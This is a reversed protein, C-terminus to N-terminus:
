NEKNLFFTLPIHVRLRWAKESHEAGVFKRTMWNKNERYGASRMVADIRQQFPEYTADLTETGFDFYLKHNQPKPLHGKLYDIVIGDGAPWHTSVCGAGGFVDPYESMAYASILGGMSSGMIFTDQPKTFTRYNADIFPKLEKVIFKLYNDSIIQGQVAVPLNKLNAVNPDKVAKQPMYEQFRKPTNWIGVIIAPRIKKEAILRTMTEDIAWDVGGYAFRPDFLNQGDHMYVVAYHRTKSTEYDPPLWVDIHRPDVYKSNFLDHRKITGTVGLGPNQMANQM